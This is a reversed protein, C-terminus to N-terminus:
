ATRAATCASPRTSSPPSALTLGLDSSLDVLRKAEGVALPGRQTIREALDHAAARAQANPVVRNVLGIREADEASLMEAVLIM